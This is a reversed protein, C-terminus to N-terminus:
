AAGLDGGAGEAQGGRCAAHRVRDARIGVQIRGGLLDTVTDQSSKYFVTEVKLGARQCFMESALHTATGRGGAGVNLAGPHAKGYAILEPLSNM